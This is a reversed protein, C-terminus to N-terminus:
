RKRRMTAAWRLLPWCSPMFGMVLAIRGTYRKEKFERLEKSDPLEVDSM